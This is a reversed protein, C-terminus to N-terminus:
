RKGAEKDGRRGGGGGRRSEERVSESPRGPFRWTASEDISRTSLHASYRTEETKWRRGDEMGWREVCLFHLGPEVRGVREGERARRESPSDTEGYGKSHEQMTCGSRSAYQHPPIDPISCLHPPAASPPRQHPVRVRVLFVFSYRRHRLGDAAHVANKLTCLSANSPSQDAGDQSRLRLRHSSILHPIPIYGLEIEVGESGEATSPSGDM